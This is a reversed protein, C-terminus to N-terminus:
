KILHKIVNGDNNTILYNKQLNGIVRKVHIRVNAVTRTDEVEEPWLQSQGETFSPIELKSGFTGLTEAINFERDAM